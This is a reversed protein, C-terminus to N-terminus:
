DSIIRRMTVPTRYYANSIKIGSRKNAAHIIQGNGIYMAVHNIYKGNGYFILDGPRLESGTIKKGVTAQSRSVRPLSIGFNRYVGMTFGSCDTGNTLSTGGWVYRNGLFKMAYKVMNVRLESVGMGYKLESITVASDFKESIHVYDKSIYGEDEDITIKVWGELDEEVELEEELPVMTIVSSETTPEARVYLTTTTVTAVLKICEPALDIADQGTILYETSCFGEVKGSKIHAWAGDEAYAIVECGAHKPMKGVIEGNESAEKRVNLWNDVNAIGLNKYGGYTGDDEGYGTIGGGTNADAGEGSLTKAYNEQDAMYSALEAELDEDTVNEGNMVANVVYDAAHSKTDADLDAKAEDKKDDALVVLKENGNTDTTRAVTPKNTHDSNLAKDAGASILGMMNGAFADGAYLISLILGLLLIYFFRKKM